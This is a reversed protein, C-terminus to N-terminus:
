NLADNPGLLWMGLGPRTRHGLVLMWSFTSRGELLLMQQWARVVCEARKQRGQSVADFLHFYNERRDWFFPWYSQASWAALRQLVAVIQFIGQIGDTSGMPTKSWIIVTECEGNDDLVLRGM